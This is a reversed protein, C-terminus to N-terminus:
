AESPKAAWEFFDQAKHAARLAAARAAIEKDLESLHFQASILEGNLAVIRGAVAARTARKQVLDTLAADLDEARPIPPQKAM